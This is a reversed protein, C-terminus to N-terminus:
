LSSLERHMDPNFKTDLFSAFSPFTFAKGFRALPGNQGLLRYIALRTKGIIAMIGASTSFKEKETSIINSMM